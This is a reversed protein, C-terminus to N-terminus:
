KILFFSFVNNENLPFFNISSLKKSFTINNLETVFEKESTELHNLRYNEDTSSFSFIRELIKDPVLSMDKKSFYYYLKHYNTSLNVFIHNEKTDIKLEYLNSTSWLKIIRKDHISYIELKKSDDTPTILFLEACGDKDIDYYSFTTNKNFGDSDILEILFEPYASKWTHDGITNKRYSKLNQAIKDIDMKYKRGVTDWSMFYYKDHEEFYDMEDCSKDNIYYNSHSISFIIDYKLEINKKTLVATRVFSTGMSAVMIKGLSSNCKITGSPINSTNLQVAKNDYFTYLKCFGNYEQGISIFLEPMSDDDIDYLEYYLYDANIDSDLTKNKKNEDLLISYYAKQWDSLSETDVTSSDSIEPASAENNSSGNNCGSFLLVLILSFIIFRKKM